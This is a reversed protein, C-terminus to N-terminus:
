SVLTLNYYYNSNMGTEITPATEAALQGLVKTALQDPEEADLQGPAEVATSHANSKQYL